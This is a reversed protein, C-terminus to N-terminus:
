TDRIYKLLGALVKNKREFMKIAQAFFKTAQEFVKHHAWVSQPVSLCKQLGSLCKINREFMKTNVAVIEGAWLFYNVGGVYEKAGLM